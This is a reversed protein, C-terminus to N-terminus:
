GTLEPENQLREILLQIQEIKVLSALENEIGDIADQMDRLDNKLNENEANKQALTSQLRQIERKLVDMEGAQSQVQSTNSSLATKLQSIECNLSKLETEKQAAISSEYFISFTLLVLLVAVVSQVVFNKGALCGVRSGTIPTQQKKFALLTFFKMWWRFGVMNEARGYAL